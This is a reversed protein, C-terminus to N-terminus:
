KAPPAQPAPQSHQSQSDPCDPHQQAGLKKMKVSAIEGSRSYM